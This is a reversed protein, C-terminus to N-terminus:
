KIPRNLVITFHFYRVNALKVEELLASKNKMGIYIIKPYEKVAKVSFFSM